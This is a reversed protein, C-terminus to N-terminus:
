TSADPAAYTSPPTGVEEAFVHSFSSLTEYGVAYAVQTVQEGDRLLSKAKALRVQRILGSPTHETEARLKRYLTSRSMAMDAALDTAGFDPDTLHRRVIARARREIEPREEPAPSADTPGDPAEQLEAELRRRLRQQLTLVGGVRQELVAADFPKTVYDDAGAQLGAVEDTTAARATLMIIPIAATEADDKLRRTMEHGDVGPMMVDALIVDPLHERAQTVGQEGNAAELVEFTPELISRVYRRV